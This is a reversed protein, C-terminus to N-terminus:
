KGEGAEAPAADTGLLARARRVDGLTLTTDNVAWIVRDDEYSRMHRIDLRALPVLAARLAVAEQAIPIYAAIQEQAIELQRRLLANDAELEIIAKDRIALQESVIAPLKRVQECLADWNKTEDM